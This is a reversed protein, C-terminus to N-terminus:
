TVIDMSIGREKMWSLLVEEDGKLEIKRALVPELGVRLLCGRLGEDTVREEFDGEV